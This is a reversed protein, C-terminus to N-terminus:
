TSSKQLFLRLSKSTIRVHLRSEGGGVHVSELVGTDILNHVTQRSVALQKAAEAVKLLAPGNLRDAARFDPINLM